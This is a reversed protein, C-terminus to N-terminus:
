SRPSTTAGPRARWRKPRSGGDHVTQTSPRAVDGARRRAAFLSLRGSQGSRARHLFRRGDLGPDLGARGRSRQDGRQSHALVDKGGHHEVVAYNHHCNIQTLDSFPTRFLSSDFSSITPTSWCKNGIRRPMDSHGASPKCTNTTSIQARSSTRSTGILCSFETANRKGKRPRFSTAAGAPKRDWAFRFSAHDLGRRDRRSLARPLPQRFRAHRVPSDDNDTAQPRPRLSEGDAMTRGPQDGKRSGPRRRRSHAAGVAGASAESCVSHSALQGHAGVTCGHWLRHRCGRGRSDRCGRHRDGVRGNGGPRFSCRADAGGAWPRFPLKASLAAQDLTHDDIISAWSLVNPRPETPMNENKRLDASGM